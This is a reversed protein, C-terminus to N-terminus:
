RTIVWLKTTESPKLVRKGFSLALDGPLYFTKEELDMLTETPNAVEYMYGKFPGVQYQKHSVMSVGEPCNRSGERGEMSPLQDSVLMKMATVLKEQASIAKELVPDEAKEYKGPQKEKLSADSKLLVTSAEREFPKLTIDQTHGNETILTLSIPKAGNLESPKIFVQGSNEDVQIVYAEEDGFVQTIRDNTVAVRNLNDKSISAELRKTANMEIVQSTSAIGATMELLSLGMIQFIVSKRM